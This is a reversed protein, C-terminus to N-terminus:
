YEDQDDWIRWVLTHPTLNEPVTHGNKCSNLINSLKPLESHLLAMEVPGVM